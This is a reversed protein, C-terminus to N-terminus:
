PRGATGLPDPSESPRSRLSPTRPGPRAHARGGPRPLDAEVPGGGGGDRRGDDGRRARGRAGHALHLRRRLRRRDREQGVGPARARPTGGPACTGPRPPARRRRGAPCRSGGADRDADGYRARGGGREPRRLSARGAGRPRDRRPRAARLRARARAAGRGRNRARAGARRGQRHRVPHGLDRAEGRRRPVGGGFECLLRPVLRGGPGTSSGIALRGRVEGEGADLEDLLQQEAQLLRRAGAYVRLGAETPEVRWIGNVAHSVASASLAAALLAATGFILRIVIEVVRGLRRVKHVAAYCLSPPAVTRLCERRRGARRPRRRSATPGRPDGGQVAPARRQDDPGDPPGRDSAQLGRGGGRRERGGAGPSSASSWGTSPTM